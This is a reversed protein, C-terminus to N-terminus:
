GPRPISRAHLASRHRADRGARNAGSGDDVDMETTGRPEAAKRVVQRVRSTVKIVTNFVLEYIYSEALSRGKNAGAQTVLAWQIVAQPSVIGYNLLKEVISIAVGPQSTWYAM